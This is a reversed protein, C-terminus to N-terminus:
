EHRPPIRLSRFPQGVRPLLRGSDTGPLSGRNAAPHYGRPRASTGIVIPPRGELATIQEVADELTAVQVTRELSERRTPNYVSGWGDRWHRLVRDLFRRQPEYPHVIWTGEVGYTTAARSLDHLDLNTVSTCVASGTKDITPFHVLAIHLPMPLQLPEGESQSSRRVPFPPNNPRNTKKSEELLPLPRIWFFTECTEKYAVSYISAFDSHHQSTQGEEVNAGISTRARVLGRPQM